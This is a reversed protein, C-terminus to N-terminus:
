VQNHCAPAARGVHSPCPLRVALFSGLLPLLRPAYVRASHTVFAAPRQEPQQSLMLLTVFVAVKSCLHPATDLM